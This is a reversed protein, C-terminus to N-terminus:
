NKSLATSNYTLYKYRIVRISRSIHPQSLKLHKGIKFQPVGQMLSRVIFKETDTLTDMFDNVILNSEIDFNDEAPIEGFGEVNEQKVAVKVFENGIRSPKVVTTRLTLYTKIYGKIYSTAYTSFQTGLESNYNKAAKILGLRGESIIDDDLPVHMKHIVFFVLELNDLILSEVGKDM